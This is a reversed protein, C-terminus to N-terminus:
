QMHTLWLGTDLVWLNDRSVINVKIVYIGLYSPADHAVKKKSEMYAKCNRKWHGEKGCHFCTGKSSTEKAKKKAARGKKKKIKRKKNSKSGFSDVHMMTKGEKKLTPEVIKLLNVLELISTEKNNM